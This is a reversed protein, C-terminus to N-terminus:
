RLSLQLMSPEAPNTQRSTYAIPYRRGDSGDQELLAGFGKESADTWLYFPKTLDPPRLLPASVLMRKVDQFALECQDSWVFPVTAGTSKDKRTLATLPRTVAALNPLHRRYFNVLGLFGKVERSSTPRPFEKVAKVKCDNPRVGDPSLTHGLYEVETQAFSCKEPQLRLGSEELQRLVQKIHELHEEYSQSVILLDDLYVFLFQWKPGTFLQNMLWQFTAPANTLGFPM